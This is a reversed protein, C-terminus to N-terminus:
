KFTYYIKGRCNRLRKNRESKNNKENGSSVKRKKEKRVM